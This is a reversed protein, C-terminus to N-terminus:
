YSPATFLDYDYKGNDDKRITIWGNHRPVIGYIEHEKHVIAIEDLDVNLNDPLCKLMEQKLYTIYEIVITRYVYQQDRNM